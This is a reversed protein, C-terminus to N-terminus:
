ADQPTGAGTRTLAWSLENPIRNSSYAQDGRSINGVDYAHPNGASGAPQGYILGEDVMMGMHYAVLPPERGPIGTEDMSQYPPLEELKLSIERVLDWDRKM